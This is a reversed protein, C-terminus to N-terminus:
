MTKRTMSLTLGLMQTSSGLLLVMWEMLMFFSDRIKLLLELTPSRTLQWKYGYWLSLDKSERKVLTSATGVCIWTHMLDITSAFNTKKM